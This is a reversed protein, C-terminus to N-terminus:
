LIPSASALRSFAKVNQEQHDIRWQRLESEFFCSFMILDDIAPDNNQCFRFSAGLLAEECGESGETEDDVDTGIELGWILRLGAREVVCTTFIGEEPVSEISEDIDLHCQKAVSAIGCVVGAHLYIADVIMM